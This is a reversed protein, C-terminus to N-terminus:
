CEVFFLRHRPRNERHTTYLGGNKVNWLFSAIGVVGIYIATSSGLATSADVIWTHPWPAPGVSCHPSHPNCCLVQAVAM